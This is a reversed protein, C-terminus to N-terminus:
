TFITKMSTGTFLLGTNSSLGYVPPICVCERECVLLGGAEARGLLCLVVGKMMHEHLMTTKGLTQMMACCCNGIVFNQGSAM